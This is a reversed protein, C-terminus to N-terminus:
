IITVFCQMIVDRSFKFLNFDKILGKKFEVTATNSTLIIYMNCNLSVITTFLSKFHSVCVKVAPENMSKAQCALDM